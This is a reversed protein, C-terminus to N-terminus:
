QVLSCLDGKLIKKDTLGVSISGVGLTSLVVSRHTRLSFEVGPKVSYLSM